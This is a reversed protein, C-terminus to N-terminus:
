VVYSSPLLVENGGQEFYGVLLFLLRSARVVRQEREIVILPVHWEILCSLTFRGNLGEKRDRSCSM